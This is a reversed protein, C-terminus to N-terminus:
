EKLQRFIPHEPNVFGSILYQEEEEHIDRYEIITQEELRQILKGDRIPVHLQYFEWQEKLTEEIKEKLMEVDYKNLASIKAFPHSHPIFSEGFRDRKNYVTLAPINEAGLEALLEHVTKEHDPYDKSSGDVVHLIFDAETVEELTSRFAAILTTPLDQIFGVTDSIIAKFGNPLRIKGTLPDLTAFLQDEEASYRETLQNFLTSKGANTYGVIAIQFAHNEKRRRRYQQRQKVVTTLQRRIETIRRQIHRRDTELKTEGPGRTGIGGGLRSLEIGKGYLRPLMYQLQALEVQLKGEKTKARSAFIDLILQTRDIVRLDTINTINRMQGPSLEDNFIILDIDQEEALQKIEKIKGEGLYTSPHIATRKQTVVQIVDGKATETLAQLEHLSSQFREEDDGHLYCAALLVREQGEM